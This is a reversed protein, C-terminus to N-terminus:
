TVVNFALVRVGHRKCRGLIREIVKEGGSFELEYRGTTQTVRGRVMNFAFGPVRSLMGFFVQVVSPKIFEIEFRATPRMEQSM